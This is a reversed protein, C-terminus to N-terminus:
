GAQHELDKRALAYTPANTDVPTTDRSPLQIGEAGAQHQGTQVDCQAQVCTVAVTPQCGEHQIQEGEEYAFPKTPLQQEEAAEIISTKDENPVNVDEPCTWQQDAEVKHNPPATVIANLLTNSSDDQSLEWVMMGLLGRAGVYQAKVALSRTSEYTIFSAQVPNYAYTANATADWYVTWNKDASFLSQIQPTKLQYYPSAAASVFLGTAQIGTLNRTSAVGTRQFGYFPVGLVLQGAPVGAALYSLVGAGATKPQSKSPFLPSAHKTIPNTEWSGTYPYGMINIWDVVPAVAAAMQFQLANGTNSATTLLSGPPLAARLAAVLLPYTTADSQVPVEWDVDLGDFSYNAALSACSAAFRTRSANTAAAAQFPAAVDAGGISLTTRLHPFKTKLQLLAPLNKSDKSNVLACLGGSTVTAFSYAIVDINSADINAITLSTYSPLYVQLITRRGAAIGAVVVLVLAICEMLAWRPAM